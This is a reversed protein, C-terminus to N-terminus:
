KQGEFQSLLAKVQPDNPKLHVAERLHMLAEERQDLQLLILALNCHADAYSQDLQLAARAEALAEETKGLQSLNISLNNHAEVYNPKVRLAARFHMIADSWDAKSALGYGLSNNAEPNDPRLELAKQCHAIGEDLRGEKKMLANCLGIEAIHNNSTNALARNWLSESDRWFSTEFYSDVMLGTLIFLAFAILVQRGRPWRAFLELAGWVLLFYLGIQSLYTYRDARRQNGVQIIGIMPVLM